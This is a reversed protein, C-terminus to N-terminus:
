EFLKFLVAALFGSLTSFGVLNGSSSIAAEPIMSAAIMTLMAGSALGELFAIWTHDIIEAALFGIGAGIATLIMLSLWMVFIRTKQWGQERMHASSSLAEPFNSLFLGAILTYPIIDGFSLSAQATVKLSLLAFMGAGIVMSEPIGDLLIGLWIAMPSGRHEEKMRQIEPMNPMEVDGILAKKSEEAWEVMRAHKKHLMDEYNQIRQTTLSTCKSKFEGSMSMLEHLDDKDIRYTKVKGSAVATAMNQVGLIIPALNIIMFDPEVDVLFENNMYGKVTGEAIIYAHYATEGERYIIEGDQFEVPELVSMLHEIQDKPFNEFLEYHALDDLMAEQEEIKSKKYYNLVSSRRRLFGGKKNVLNDLIIYLLGGAVCGFILMFFSTKDSDGEILGVSHPVILEVSLAALLAGAGFAALFSLQTSNFKYRLGVWSGIPLSVASLAGLASAWLFFKM